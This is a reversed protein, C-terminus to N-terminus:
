LREGGEQLSTLFRGIEEYNKTIFHKTSWETNLPERGLEVLIDDICMVGSAILNNCATSLEFINQHQIKGTDVKYFNGRLYNDRGARKNLAETIADAYPDVGFTLFSSVVEKMNTINGTMMSEPIHFAAAVKTTLEKQLDVFTKSSQATAAKAAPDQELKYGDFEPYVASDSNMFSKLQEKIFGEFEKNFDEDGAKVGEIHLKYKLGNNQKLAKAASQIIKGYERYMGDILQRVNMNDLKFMYCDKQEFTRYFNQTGVTVNDYSDGYVPDQRKRSYSDACYLYGDFEIVLAEGERIMKNIVKHWFHSSTENRNPSINLLYYDDRRVSKSNVYTKIESRSIANSILSSATFIALDKYYTEAPIDIIISEAKGGPEIKTVPLLWEVFNWAM